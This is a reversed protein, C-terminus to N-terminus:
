INHSSLHGPTNRDTWGRECGRQRTSNPTSDPSNGQEARTLAAMLKATQNGFEMTSEVPETTIASKARVKDHTEKNESEVKCAATM